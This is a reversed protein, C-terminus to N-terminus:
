QPVPVWLMFLPSKRCYEVSQNRNFINFINRLMLHNFSYCWLRSNYKCKKSQSQCNCKNNCLGEKLKNRTNGGLIWAQLCLREYTTYQLITCPKCVWLDPLLFYSHTITGTVTISNGVMLWIHDLLQSSVDLTLPVHLM